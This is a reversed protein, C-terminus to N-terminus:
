GYIIGWRCDPNIALAQDMTVFCELATGAVGTLNVPWVRVQHYAVGSTLVVVIELPLALPQLSLGPAEIEFIGSINELTTLGAGGTAYCWLGVIRNLTTPVAITGLTTKVTDGSAVAAM